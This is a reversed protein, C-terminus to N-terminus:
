KKPINNIFKKVYENNHIEEPNTSKTGSTGYLWSHAVKEKDGGFLSLRRLYEEKALALATDPDNNLINTVEDEPFQKIDPYEESMAPNRNVIEKATTPTMGFPGGARHGKNIGNNIVPYNLNSGGSSENQSIAYLDPDEVKLKEILKKLEDM